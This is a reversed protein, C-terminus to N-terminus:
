ANILTTQNLPSLADVVPISEKRNRQKMKIKKIAKKQDKNQPQIHAAKKQPINLHLINYTIISIRCALSSLLEVAVQLIISQARTM